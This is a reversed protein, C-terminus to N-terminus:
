HDLSQGDENDLSYGLIISTRLSRKKNKGTLKYGIITQGQCRITQSSDLVINLNHIPLLLLRIDNQILRDL